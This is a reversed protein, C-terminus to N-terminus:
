STFTADTAPLKRRRVNIRDPTASAQAIGVVELRYGIVTYGLEAAARRVLQEIKPERFEVIAGSQADVLHEHRGAEAEEYRSKGDGLELKTLFGAETLINLTRYVTGLSINRDLATVRDYIDHASPHDTANALVELIAHRTSSMRLGYDRCLRELRNMIRM